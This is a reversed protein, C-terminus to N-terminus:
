GAQAARRQLEYMKELLGLVEQKSSADSSGKNLMANIEGLALQSAADAMKQTYASPTRFM